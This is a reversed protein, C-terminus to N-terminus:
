EEVAPLFWVPNIASERKRIEYHLHPTTVRGTAGSLGIVDGEKITDGEKVLIKSLHAYASNIEEVHEIVVLQGYGSMTRSLRVTGDATAIVPTGKPIIIDIGKHTRSRGGGKSRLSGFWSSIYGLNEKVPWLHPVAVTFNIGEPPNETEQESNTKFLPVEIEEEEEGSYINEFSLDPSNISTSTSHESVEEIGKSHQCSLFFLALVSVSMGLVISYNSVIRVIKISRSRSRM